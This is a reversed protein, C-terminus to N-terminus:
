VLNEFQPVKETHITILLLIIWIFNKVKEKIHADLSIFVYDAFSCAM